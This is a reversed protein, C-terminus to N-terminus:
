VAPARARRVRLFSRISLVLYVLCAIAVLTQAVVAEPRAISEGALMRAAKVVGPVTGALGVLALVSAVSLAVAQSSERRSWLACGLLPLGLFTPILATVSQRGTGLYFGIGLLTLFAALLLTWRTMSM